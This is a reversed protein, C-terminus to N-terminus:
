GRVANGGRNIRLQAVDFVFHVSEQGIVPRSILFGIGCGDLLGSASQVREGIVGDCNRVRFILGLLPSVRELLWRHNSELEQM